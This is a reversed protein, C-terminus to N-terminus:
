KLYGRYAPMGIYTSDFFHTMSSCHSNLQHTMSSVSLEVYLFLMFINYIKGYKRSLMRWPLESADVMPAVILRPEGLSEKWLKYGRVSSSMGNVQFLVLFSM